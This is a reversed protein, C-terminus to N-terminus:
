RPKNMRTHVRNYADQAALRADQWQLKPQRNQTEWRDRAGAETEAWSASSDGGYSDAGALYAPKYDQFTYDDSYYPRDKYENQWYEMEVTPDYSEAVSKGALGGAIGGVAAGVVAGVPGAFAGAIAGTAAGGLTAGVGSGVPHAGAEGSLPDENRLEKVTESNERKQVAM